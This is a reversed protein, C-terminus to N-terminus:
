LVTTNKIKRLIVFASLVTFVIYGTIICFSVGNEKFFQVFTTATVAMIAFSIFSIIMSNKLMRMIIMVSTFLWCVTYMVTCGMIGYMLFTYPVFVEGFVIGVALEGILPILTYVATSIVALIALCKLILKLFTRSKLVFISCLIMLM